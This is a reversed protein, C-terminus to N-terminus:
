FEDFIPQFKWFDTKCISLLTLRLALRSKLIKADSNQFKVFIPPFEQFNTWYDTQLTLRAALHSKLIEVDSTHTDVKRRTTAFREFTM